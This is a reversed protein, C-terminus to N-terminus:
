GVLELSFNKAKISHTIYGLSIRDAFSAYNLINKPTIGGSIEVLIKSNINRIKKAIREGNEPKFNDLMIVDVNMRAATYADQENEVEIEIIKDKVKQKIKEIINKISGAGKIHNDKILVADYLGYRHAEGGGLVVAKKEFKRFGPTTKRTAAVTVNPNINRCKDVLIKTETAIGSMRCIFNLALRESKLISRISGEIEAVIKDENVYDGDNCFLKTQLGNKDFVIKLEELGAIVCDEKAIVNAKANEDTFISDSTVDGEENLDEKLFRDFDDM